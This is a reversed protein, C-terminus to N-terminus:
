ALPFILVYVGPWISTLVFLAISRLSNPPNSAFTSSFTFGVDLAIYTTVVFFLISFVYMPQLVLITLDLRPNNTSHCAYTGGDIFTNWRRRDTNVRDRERPTVLVDCRRSRLGAMVGFLLFSFTEDANRVEGCVFVVWSVQM